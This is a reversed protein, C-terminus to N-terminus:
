IYIVGMILTSKNNVIYWLNILMICTEEHMDVFLDSLIIDLNIYILSCYTQLYECFVHHVMM